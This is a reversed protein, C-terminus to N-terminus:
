KLWIILMVIGPIFVNLIGLTIAWRIKTTGRNTLSSVLVLYTFISLAVALINSKILTSIIMLLVVSFGSFCVCLCYGLIALAMNPFPFWYFLLGIVSLVGLVLLSIYYRFNM